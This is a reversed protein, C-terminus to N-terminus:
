VSLIWSMYCIPFVSLCVLLSLLSCACDVKFRRALFKNKIELFNGRSMEGKFPENLIAFRVDNQVDQWRAYGHRPSARTLTMLVYSAHECHGQQHREYDGSVNTNRTHEAVVASGIRKWKFLAHTYRRTKSGQLFYAVSRSKGSLPACRLPQPVPLQSHLSFLVDLLNFFSFFIRHNCCTFKLQASPVQLKLSYFTSFM